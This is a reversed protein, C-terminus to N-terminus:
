FFLYAQNIKNHEVIFDLFKLNKQHGVIEM